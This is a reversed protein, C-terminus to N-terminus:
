VPARNTLSSHSPIFARLSLEGNADLSGLHVITFSPSYVNLCVQGVGAVTV